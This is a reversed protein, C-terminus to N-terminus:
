RGTIANIIKRNLVDLKQLDFQELYIETVAHASSKHGLLYSIEEVSIGISRAINAYSYRMVYTSLRVDLELLKGIKKLHNNVVHLHQEYRKLVQINQDLLNFKDDMVGILTEGGKFLNELLEKIEEEMGISYLTKTKSREYVIRDGKLNKNTLKVM